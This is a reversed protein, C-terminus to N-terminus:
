NPRPRHPHHTTRRATHRTARRARQECWACSEAVAVSAFGILLHAANGVAGADMSGGPQGVGVAFVVLYVVGMLSAVLREARTRVASAGIVVGTVVHLVGLPVHGRAFDIVAWVVLLVGLLLASRQPWTLAAPGTM